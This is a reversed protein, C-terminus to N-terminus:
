SLVLSRADFNLRSNMDVLPRALTDFRIGQYRHLGFFRDDDTVDELLVPIILKRRTRAWQIEDWV